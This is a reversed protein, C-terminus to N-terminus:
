ESEEESALIIWALTRQCAFNLDRNAREVSEHALELWKGARERFADVAAEPTRYYLFADLEAVRIRRRGWRSKITITKPGKAIIRVRRLIPGRDSEDDSRQVYWLWEDHKLDSM